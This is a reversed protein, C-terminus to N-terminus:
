IRPVNRTRLNPSKGLKSFLRNRAIRRSRYRIRGLRADNPIPERVKIWLKLDGGFSSLRCDYCMPVEHASGAYTVVPTGIPRACLEAAVYKVYKIYLDGSLPVSRDISLNEFMNEELREVNVCRNGRRNHWSDLSCDTSAAEIFLENDSNVGIQIWM